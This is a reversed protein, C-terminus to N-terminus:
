ALFALAALGVASVLLKGGSALNAAGGHFAIPSTKATGTSGSPATGTATAPITANSSPYSYPLSVTVVPAAPTSAVPASTVAAPTSSSSSTTSTSLTASPSPTVSPPSSPTDAPCDAGADAPLDCPIIELFVPSCQAGLSEDYLNYFTGSLCHYFVASGAIALTNNKCVSFGGTNRAIDQVHLDYQFQYNAVIEGTRKCQDTLVGGKLTTYPEATCTTRQYSGSGPSSIPVPNFEFTGDFDESCGDPTQASVISAAALASLALAYKM